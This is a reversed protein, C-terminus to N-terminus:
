LSKLFAMLASKEFSSLRTFRDRARRGQGDHALIAQDLTTARGDHLYTTVKSAGWLPQTRMLRGTARNQTIGDGLAGMDHLLFDSYPHFTVQNLAAVANSGTKLTARHCSACGLNNFVAEGVVVAGNIPGRKPPALFAMFDAFADVAEGDDNMDPAPNCSLSACDGQPCNEDPFTPSTIGMENLYADGAFVHLTANQGKWGFKGVALKGTEPNMVISPVGDSGDREFHEAAAIALFTADPVANVLGLGFLPTTRRKAVVNAEAPVEEALYECDAAPGIGHDQILSGGFQALPDFKGKANLVGFRTELRDSGGGVAPVSHCTACSAENFVPGIGEEVTEAELFEDKGVDFRALQEATLGALPQGYDPPSPSTTSVLASTGLVVCFPFLVRIWVRSVM